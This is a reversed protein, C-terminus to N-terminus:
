QVLLMQTSQRGDETKLIVFYLGSELRGPFKFEPQGQLRYNNLVRGSPDVLSLDGRVKGPNQLTVWGDPSPNPYLMTVQLSEMELGEAAIETPQSGRSATCGAAQAEAVDVWCQDCSQYPRCPPCTVALQAMAVGQFAVLVLTMMVLRKM